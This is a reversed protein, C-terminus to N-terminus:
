DIITNDYLYSTKMVKGTPDILSTEQKSFDMRVQIGEQNSFYAKTFGSVTRRKFNHSVMKEIFNQKLTEEDLM